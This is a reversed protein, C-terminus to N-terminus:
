GIIVEESGKDEQKSEEKKVSEGEEKIPLAKDQNNHTIINM